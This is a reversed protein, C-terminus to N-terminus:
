DGSKSTAKAPTEKPPAAAEAVAADVEAPDLAWAKLEAIAGARKSEPLSMIEAVYTAVERADFRSTLEDNEPDFDNWRLNPQERKKLVWVVGRLSTPDDERVGAKIEGWKMDAAKQVIAAESTRVRRMDFQQEEGGEPRYLIIM